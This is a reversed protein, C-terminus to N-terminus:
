VQENYDYEAERQTIITDGRGDGDLRQRITYASFYRGAEPFMDPEATISCGNVHRNLRVIRRSISLLSDPRFNQEVMWTNTNAATEITGMFTRVRHMTTNLMNMSYKAVEQHILIRSHYYLIGLSFMFIPAAMLMICLSLQTSLKLRNKIM